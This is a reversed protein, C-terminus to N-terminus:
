FMSMLWQGDAISQIVGATIYRESFVAKAAAANVAKKEKM